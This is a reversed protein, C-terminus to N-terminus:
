VGYTPTGQLPYEGGGLLLPSEIADPSLTVEIPSGTKPSVRGSPYEGGGLPSARDGRPSIPGSGIISVRGRLPSYKGVYPVRYLISEGWPPSVINYKGEPPLTDGLPDGGGRPLPRCQEGGQGRERACLGKNSNRHRQTKKM